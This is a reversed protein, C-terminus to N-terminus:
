TRRGSAEQRAHRQPGPRDRRPDEGDEANIVDMALVRPHAREEREFADLEDRLDVSQYSAFVKITDIKQRRLRNYV